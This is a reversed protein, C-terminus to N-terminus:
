LADLTRGYSRRLNRGEYEAAIEADSRPDGADALRNDVVRFPRRGPVFALDGQCHAVVIGSALASRKGRARLREFFSHDEGLSGPLPTFPDAGLERLLSARHMVFNMGASAIPVIEGFAFDRGERPASALDNPRLLSLPTSFPARPGFYATLVDFSRRAFTDHMLRLTGACWYCDDDIWICAADDPTSADGCVRSALANRAEDVPRGIERVIRHELGDMNEALALATQASPAESRMPMLVLLEPSV